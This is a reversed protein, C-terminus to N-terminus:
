KLFLMIINRFICVKTGLLLLDVLKYCIAKVKKLYKRLKSDTEEKEEVVASELDEIEEDLDQTADDLDKKLEFGLEATLKGLRKDM